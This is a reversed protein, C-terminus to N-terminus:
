GSPNSRQGYFEADLMRKLNVIATQFHPLLSQSYELDDGGSELLEGIRAAEVAGAM